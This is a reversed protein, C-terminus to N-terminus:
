VAARVDDPSLAAPQLAGRDACHPTGCQGVAACPCYHQNIMQIGHLTLRISCTFCLRIFIIM